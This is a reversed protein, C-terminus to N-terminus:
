LRPVRRSHGRTGTTRHAPQFRVTSWQTSRGITNFRCIAATTNSFVSTIIADVEGSISEVITQGILTRLYCGSLATATGLFLLLRLLAKRWKNM